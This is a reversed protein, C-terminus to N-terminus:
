ISASRRRGILRTAVWFGLAALPLLLVFMDPEGGPSMACGGGGGGSSSGGSPPPTSTPPTGVGFTSSHKAQFTVEGAPTGAPNVNQILDTTWTYAGLSAVTPPVLRYVALPSPLTAGPALHITVTIWDGLADGDSDTGGYGSGGILDFYLGSGDAFLGSGGHCKVVPNRLENVKMSISTDFADNPVAIDVETFHPNTGFMFQAPLGGATGTPGIVTPSPPPAIPACTAEAFYIHSAHAERLDTWAAYPVGNSVGLAPNHASDAVLGLGPPVVSVTVNVPYFQGNWMMETFMIDTDGTVTSRRDQWLIFVQAYVSSSTTGTVAIRPNAADFIGTTGDLVSTGTTLPTAPWGGGTAYTTAYQIDPNTGGTAAWVFHLVTGATETAMAASGAAGTNTVQHITGWASFSDAGYLNSDATNTWVVYVVGNVDRAIAPSSKDSGGSTVPMVTWTAAGAALTGIGIQQVGGTDAGVGAVSLDGVPDVTMAPATQITFNPGTVPGVSTWATPAATTASMVGVAPTAGHVEYAVFITGGATIAIAPKHCDGNQAFTTM